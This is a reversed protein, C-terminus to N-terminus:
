RRYRGHPTSIQCHIGQLAPAPRPSRSQSRSRSRVERGDRSGLQMLDALRKRFILRTSRGGLVKYLSFANVVTMDVLNFLVKYWKLSKCTSQYSVALQDSNDVGKMGCNYDAVVQPKIREFGSRSRTTVMKSKHVTSLLTVVHRDRWQLCLM